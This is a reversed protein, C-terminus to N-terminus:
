QLYMFENSGLLVQAYQELPSLRGSGESAALFERGIALEEDTAPRQYLWSYALRIREDDTGSAQILRRALTKSREVMFPSNMLFLFQQPVVSTPRRDVTARMIPFDFLRVFEDTRFVDGNRSVKFYLTRRHSEIQDTPEGGVRLDLEGTASLLADRWAEVDLRRPNMRWNLRNDGDIRFADEDFRSSMQYAASSMITRHLTKVSQGSEVFTAALWDLLEPHTPREGLAGFNTPTRVLAEGFHHMWVRNVFVRGTLPNKADAVAEALQKRGSGADFRPAQDGALIRLFRRPAAEGAKRLDGRIAVHMDASGSEHLVQAVAYAPPATKRLEAVANAWAELQQREQEGPERKAKELEGRLMKAKQDIETIERQRANYAEVMEPAALPSEGSNTNNFIGALSYYDQQPLPDFKHDHCRACALTLGLMGRSLTDLRDSLTEAKAQAVSEPDGGDSNYAPGLAFFGTAVADRRDGIIDGAIQLRIFRDFPMDDNLADVVWDRYRWANAHAAGDLFGGHGDSYRAVDLWHRAWREGYHKSELLHDVLERVAAARDRQCAAIFAEVEAPTPPLGILDFYIRRVLVRPEAPPAPKLGAHELRALVFRDIDNKVWAADAVRPPTPKVVPQFAWHERRWKDWDYGNVATKAAASEGTKADAPWPAGIKIWEELVAIETPKLKGAPPMELSEWRVAQLLLSEQPKGAVIAVGSDGGRMAHERGDLRLGGQLIESKGSHCEYCHQVLLPRVKSEFFEIQEASFDAPFSADDAAYAPAALVLVIWAGVLLRQM